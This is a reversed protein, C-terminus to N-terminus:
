KELNSSAMKDLFPHEMYKWSDFRELSVTVGDPISLKDRKFIKSGPIGKIFYGQLPPEGKRKVLVFASESPPSSTSVWAASGYELSSDFDMKNIANQLADLKAYVEKFGM